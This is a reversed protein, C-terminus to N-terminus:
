REVIVAIVIAAAHRTDDVDANVVLEVLHICLLRLCVANKRCSSGDIILRVEIGGDMEGVLRNAAPLVGSLSSHRAM